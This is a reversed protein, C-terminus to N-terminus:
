RYNTSKTELFQALKMGKKGRGEEREKERMIERERNEKYFLVFCYKRNRELSASFDWAEWSHTLPLGTLDAGAGKSYSDCGAKGAKEDEPSFTITFELPIGTRYHAM